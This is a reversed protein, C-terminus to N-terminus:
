ENNQKNITIRNEEFFEIISNIIWVIGSSLIGDFFWSFLFPTNFYVHTPSFMFISFFIGAYLGFCMMCSTIEEIFKFFNSNRSYFSIKNRVPEFIKGYVVINSLGYCLISWIIFNIM